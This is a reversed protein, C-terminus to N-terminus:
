CTKASKFILAIKKLLYYALCILLHMTFLLSICFSLSSITGIYKLHISYPMYNVMILTAVLVAIFSFSYYWHRANLLLSCLGYFSGLILGGVAYVEIILPWWGRVDSHQDSLLILVYSFLVFAYTILYMDRFFSEKKSIPQENNLQNTLFESWFVMAILPVFCILITGLVSVFMRWDDFLLDTRTSFLMALVTFLLVYSYRNLHYM